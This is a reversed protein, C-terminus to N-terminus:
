EKANRTEKWERKMQETDNKSELWVLASISNNNLNLKKEKENRKQKETETCCKWHEQTIPAVWREYMYM